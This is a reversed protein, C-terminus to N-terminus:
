TDEEPSIPLDNIPIVYMQERMNKFMRKPYKEAFKKTIRYKDPFTRNGYADKHLISVDLIQHRNIRSESLGISQSSWMPTGINYEHVKM